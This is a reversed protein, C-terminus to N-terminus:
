GSGSRFRGGGDPKRLVGRSGFLVPYVSELVEVDAMQLGSRRGALDRITDLGDRDVGAPSGGAVGDLLTFLPRRGRDGVFSWRTTGQADYLQGTLPVESRSSAALALQVCYAAASMVALSADMHAAGIPAPPRSDLVTGPTTRIEIADFMSQTLPLDR